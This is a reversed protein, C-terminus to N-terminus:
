PPPKVLGAPSPEIRFPGIHVIHAITSRHASEGADILMGRDCFEQLIWMVSSDAKKVAAGSVLTQHEKAIKSCFLTQM